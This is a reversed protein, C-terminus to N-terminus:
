ESAQPARRHVGSLLGAPERVAALHFLRWRTRTTGIGPIASSYPAERTSARKGQSKSRGRIPQAAISRCCQRGEDAARTQATRVLKTCLALAHQSGLRCVGASVVVLRLGFQQWAGEVIRESIHIRLM